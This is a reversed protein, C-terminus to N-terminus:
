VSSHNPMKPCIRFHVFNVKKSIVELRISSCRQAVAWIVRFLIKKGFMEYNKLNTCYNASICCKSTTTYDCESM